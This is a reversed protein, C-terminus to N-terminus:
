EGTAIEQLRTAEILAGDVGAEKATGGYSATM